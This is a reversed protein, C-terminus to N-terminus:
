RQVKRLIPTVITGVVDLTAFFGFIRWFAEGVDFESLVVFILMGAVVTILTITAWMLSKQTSTKNKGWVLLMHAIGFSIITAIAISKFMGENFDWASWILPQILAAAIISATVGIKAVFGKTGKDSMRGASVMGLLSFIGVSFVTSLIKFQTDGFSGTLLFISGLVGGVAFFAIMMWLFFKAVPNQKKSKKKVM